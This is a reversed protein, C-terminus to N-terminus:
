RVGPSDDITMFNLSAGSGAEYFSAFGRGPGSVDAQSPGILQPNVVFMPVGGSAIEAANSRLPLSFLLSLGVLAVIFRTAKSIHVSRM